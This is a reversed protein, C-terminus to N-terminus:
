IPLFFEIWKEMLLFLIWQKSRLIPLFSIIGFSLVFWYPIRKNKLSSYDPQIRLNKGNSIYEAFILISNKSGKIFRIDLDLTM